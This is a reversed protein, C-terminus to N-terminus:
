QQENVAAELKDKKIFIKVINMLNIPKGIIASRIILVIAVILLPIFTIAFITWYYFKNDMLFRNKTNKDFPNLRVSRKGKTDKCDCGMTNIYIDELKIEIIPM